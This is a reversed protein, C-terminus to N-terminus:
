ANKRYGTPRPRYLANGHLLVPAATRAPQHRIIYVRLAETTLAATTGAIVDTADESPSLVVHVNDPHEQLVQQDSVRLLAGTEGHQLGSLTHWTHRLLLEFEPSEATVDALRDTVPPTSPRSAPAGLRRCEDAYVIDHRRRLDEQRALEVRRHADDIYPHPDALADQNRRTTRRDEAWEVHVARLVRDASSAPSLLWLANVAAEFQGRLLCWAAAHTMGRRALLEVLARHNDEAADLHREVVCYLRHGGPRSLDVKRADVLRSDRTDRVQLAAGFLHELRRWSRRLRALDLDGVPRPDCFM